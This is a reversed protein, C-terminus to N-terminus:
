RRSSESFVEAEGAIERLEILKMSEHDDRSDNREAAIISPREKASNVLVRSIVAIPWRYDDRDRRGRSM